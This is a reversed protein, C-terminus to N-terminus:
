AISYTSGRGEKLPERKLKKEKVLKTLTNDATHGRGESKWYKNVDKTTPNKKSKIFALVTEDATMSFHKRRRKRSLKAIPSSVTVPSFGPKRGRRGKPAVGLAAGIQELTQEIRNLADAHQEREAILKQIREALVTFSHDVAM